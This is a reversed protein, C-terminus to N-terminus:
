GGKAIGDSLLHMVSICAISTLFRFLLHYKLQLFQNLNFSSFTYRVSYEFPNIKKMRQIDFHHSEGFMNHTVVYIVSIKFFLISWICACVSKINGFIAHGTECFNCLSRMISNENKFDVTWKLVKLVAGTDYISQALWNIRNNLIENSKNM